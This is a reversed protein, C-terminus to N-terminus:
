VWYQIIVITGAVSSAFYLTGTFNSTNFDQFEENNFDLPYYPLTPAAVKGAINSFRISGGSLIKFSYKKVSSLAFSYETNASTLTVSGFTGAITSPRETVVIATDSFLALTSGLKISAFSNSVQDFLRLGNGVTITGTGQGAVLTVRATGSTWAITRLRMYQCSSGNGHLVAEATIISRNYNSGAVFAGVATWVTGNVSREIQLSGVFPTGVPQNEIVLAFSSNGSVFFSAFSNATPNGRILIQSDQGTNSTSGADLVSIDIPTSVYDITDVIVHSRSSLQLDGRQGDTLTPATARYVGGVKLPNGSDTAGSAVNGGVPIPNGIDNAIEISSNLVTVNWAGVQRAGVNENAREINASSPASSLITGASLNLWIFTASPSGSNADLIAVRALLDGISYGTGSTLVDYFDTIIDKDTTALPRLGSGPTAASGSPDTFNVTITGTGENILDRRVYFAGSNDTWITSAIDIQAKIADRVQQLVVDTAAGSPLPLNSASIPQTVGSGDVPLRGGVLANPLRDRIATELAIQSQQNTASADGGGGSGGGFSTIVNGSADVVNVKQYPTETAM